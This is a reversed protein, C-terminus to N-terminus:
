PAPAFGGAVIDGASVRQDDRLIGFTHLDAILKDLAATDVAANPPRSYDRSAQYTELPIQVFKKEVLVRRAENLNALYWATTAKLDDVWACVVGPNEQLFKEGFTVYQVPEQAAGTAQLSTFVDVVGDKQKAQTHFPEVLVAVDIQGRRLAEEQAPFPVVVYEADRTHDFGGRKVAARAWYDTSSGFDVIGIKKGKLDGFGRIGGDSRAVYTSQFGDPAERVETAVAKLPIRQAIAKVLAPASSTIADAQGAQFATFRDENGRMATYRQTYWRGRHKTLDPKAELLWLPEDVVFGHALRIEVPSAPPQALDVRDCGTAAPAASGGGSDDDGSGCGAAVLALAVGLSAARRWGFM